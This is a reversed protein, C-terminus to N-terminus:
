SIYRSEFKGQMASERQSLNQGRKRICSAISGRFARRSMDRKADDPNDTDDSSGTHGFAASAVTDDDTGEIAEDGELRARKERM